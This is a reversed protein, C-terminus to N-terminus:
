NQSAFYAITGAIVLGAVVAFAIKAASYPRDGQVEATAANVVVQYSKNSYRYGMMWVPLLLHKYTIANYQAEISHIRQTDGGILGQAPKWRNMLVLRPKPSGDKREVDYTRALFGAMM